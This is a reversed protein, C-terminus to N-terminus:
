NQALNVGMSASFNKRTRSISLLKVEVSPLGMTTLVARNTGTVSGRRVFYTRITRITRSSQEGANAWSGPWGSSLSQNSLSVDPLPRHQETASPKATLSTSQSDFPPWWRTRRSFLQISTGSSAKIVSGFRALLVITQGTRNLPWSKIRHKMGPLM